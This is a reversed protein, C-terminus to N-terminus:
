IGIVNDIFKQVQEKSDFLAFSTKSVLTSGLVTENQIKAAGITEIEFFGQEKSGNFISYNDSASFPGNPQANDAINFYIGKSEEAIERICILNRSLDYFGAFEAKSGTKVGIQGAKLGDTKYIFGGAKYTIKERPEEYFDFNIANEPSEVKVFGFTTDSADFQELTWCALLADHIKVKNLVEIADEVTYSFGCVPKARVLVDTITDVAFTRQMRVEIDTGKRNKLATRKEVVASDKSRLKIVFPENNIATQVRWTNGDYNFGMDGGEPAPWFNNGGYNNFPKDPKRVNEIDLRHLSMGNLECFVRAGLEPAFFAKAGGKEFMCGKSRRLKLLEQFNSM